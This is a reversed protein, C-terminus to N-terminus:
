RRRRKRKNGGFYQMNIDMDLIENSIEFAAEDHRPRRLKMKPNNSIGFGESFVDAKGNENRDHLLFLAYTGEKELPVCVDVPGGDEPVAVEIRLLKTGKELFEDPNDNYLQVRVNGKGDKFEQVKLKIAPLEQAGECRAAFQNGMITDEHPLKLELSSSPTVSEVAAMEEAVTNPAFALALVSVSLAKINKNLPM